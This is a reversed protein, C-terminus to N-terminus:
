RVLKFGCCNCHPAYALQYEKKSKQFEEWRRESGLCAYYFIRQMKELNKLVFLGLKLWWNLSVEGLKGKRKERVWFGLVGIWGRWSFGLFEWNGIRLARSWKFNSFVLLKLLNFELAPKLEAIQLVRFKVVWLRGIWDFM